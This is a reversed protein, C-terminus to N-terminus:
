SGYCLVSSIATVDLVVIKKLVLTYLINLIVYAVICPVVFPHVFSIVRPQFRVSCGYVVRGDEKIVGLNTGITPKM